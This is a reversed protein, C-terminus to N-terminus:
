SAQLHRISYLSKYIYIVCLQVKAFQYKINAPFDSKSNGRGVGEGSVDDVDM